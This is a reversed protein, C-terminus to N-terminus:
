APKALLVKVGKLEGAIDQLLESVIGVLAPFDHAGTQWQKVAEVVEKAIPILPLFAKVQPPLFSAIMPSAAAAALTDLLSEIKALDIQPLQPTSTPTSTPTQTMPPEPKSQPTPTKAALALSSARVERVRRSWGNGFTPWTPIRQLFALRQNCLANILSPAGQERVYKDTAALTLPGIIGDQAAGVIGQLYKASRSNGSNVGFDFVAYDVGPPLEDCSLVDWYKQKYIAEVQSQPAQWVDQPLGPHTKRWENWESQLIGRSTRGGPDRPDDDNGGEHELLKPLVVEFNGKM